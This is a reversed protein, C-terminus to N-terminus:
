VYLEIMKFFSIEQFLFWFHFKRVDQNLISRTPPRRKAKELGAEDARQVRIVAYLLENEGVRTLKMDVGNEM